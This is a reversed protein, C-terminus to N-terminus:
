VNMECWRVHNVLISTISLVQERERLYKMEQYRRYEESAAQIFNDRPDPYAANDNSFVNNYLDAQKRTV